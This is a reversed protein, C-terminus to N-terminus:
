KLVVAKGGIQPPPPPPRLPSLCPYTFPINNFYNEVKKVSIGGPLARELTMLMVMVIMMMMRIGTM